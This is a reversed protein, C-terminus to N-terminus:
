ARKQLLKLEEIVEDTHEEPDVSKYHKFIVGEPDIIFSERKTISMLLFKVLVGYSLLHILLLMLFAM